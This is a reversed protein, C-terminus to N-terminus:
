RTVLRASATWRELRARARAAVVSDRVLAPVVLPLKWAAALQAHTMEGGLPATIAPPLSATSGGRWPTRARIAPTAVIPPAIWIASRAHSRIAAPELPAFMAPPDAVVIGAFAAHARGRPHRTYYLAHLPELYGAAVVAFRKPWLVADVDDAIAAYAWTLAEIRAALAFAAEIMAPQADPPAHALADAGAALDAYGDQLAAALEGRDSRAALVSTRGAVLALPQAGLTARGLVDVRGAEVSIRSDRVGIVAAQSALVVGAPTYVRVAGDGPTRPAVTVRASGALVAIAIAPDASAAREGFGITADALEISGGDATAITAVHAHVIDGPYLPSAPQARAFALEGARRIDVVGTTVTAVTEAPERRIPGATVDALGAVPTAAVAPAVVAAGGDREDEAGSAGCSSACLGLAVTIARM